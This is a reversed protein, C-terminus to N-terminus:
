CDENEYAVLMTTVCLQNFASQWKPKHQCMNQQLSTISVKWLIPDSSNQKKKKKKVYQWLIHGKDWPFFEGSTDVTSAQYEHLHFSSALFM